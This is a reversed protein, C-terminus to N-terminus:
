RQSEGLNKRKKARHKEWLWQKKSIAQGKIVFGSTLPPNVTVAKEYDAM